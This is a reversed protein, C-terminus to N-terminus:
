PARLIPYDNPRYLRFRVFVARSLAEDVTLPNAILIRQAMAEPKRFFGGSNGRRLRVLDSNLSLSAKEM